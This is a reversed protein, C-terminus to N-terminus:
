LRGEYCCITLLAWCCRREDAKLSFKNENSQRKKQLLIIRLMVSEGIGGNEHVSDHVTHAHVRHTITLHMSRARM